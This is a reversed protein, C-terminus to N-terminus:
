ECLKQALLEGAVQHGLQNWHGNGIDAGFGHLYVKHREAYTQLDPALNIVAFKAREGLSKIRLDPYLLDRAGTRTKFAGRAAPEPHVQVGNSLTVVLFNAGRGEVEDRMLTLLNETVLWAEQWVAETPERYILNDIGVENPTPAVQKAAAEAAPTDSPMAVTGTQQPPLEQMHMAAKMRARREALRHKLAYQAQHLAQIVRSSDRFWRGLRSPMSQRFRFAPTARFSDDLVLQRDRYVFYPIEDTQKLARSNDTIDNNTTLALLVLDPEYQWVQERLTILEQATGYGSVGFNIVEINRGGFGACQSLRSELVSWFADEAPVQLAEVYSDGLVAIRFTGPPKVKSHERDRLGESNIRVYSESEKRYWGAMGARLAYGRTEDPTYFTPFSFGVLRLAVEVLLLGVLLGGAVLSLKLALRRTRGWRAGASKHEQSHPSM